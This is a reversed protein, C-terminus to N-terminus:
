RGPLLELLQSLCGIEGPAAPGGDHRVRLVPWGAAQAGEIDHKLSDGIHLCQAPAVGHAAEARRFIGTDPKEAGAESSITVVEFHLRLGTEALVRHLRNDWNSLVGLRYGRRRLEHLTEPAREYVRWRSGHAFTEWLEEFFADFRDPVRGLSRFAHLVVRRWFDRERGEPDLVAPDKSVAHFAARFAHDLADEPLDCGHSLGVERYIAGVSPHPRLLTGAADFTVVAVRALDIAGAANM